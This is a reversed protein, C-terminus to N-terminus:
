CVCIAQLPPQPAPVSLDSLLKGSQLLVRSAPGRWPVKKSERERILCRLLQGGAQLALCTDSWVCGSLGLNFLFRLFGKGEKGTPRVGGLVWLREGWWSKIYNWLSFNLFYWVCFTGRFTVGSSVVQDMGRGPEERPPVGALYLRWWQPM